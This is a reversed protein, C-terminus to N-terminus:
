VYVLVAEGEKTEITARRGIYFARNDDIHGAPFGTFVPYSYDDTVSSIIQEANKGWPIETDEMKTFGGSLLASLGKLRGALKMSTLMRDIHYFYEDTDEIFLIRGRTKPEAPTGILSYLLSLNGGTVEGRAFRPRFFEGSWRLPKMGGFLADYLSELAAPAKDRNKYNLPMEGHITMMNKRESLWTLLVTVDSFGVYWKPYRGLMSFDIKDIIKLLGYGGRSCFVARIKASATMEQLDHIREEETGAFPGERRFVNKGLRVRLGWGELVSVADEVNKEDIAYAPSIIAVEDGRKLFPPQIKHLSM